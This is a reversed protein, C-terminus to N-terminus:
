AMAIISHDAGAGAIGYSIWSTRNTQTNINEIWCRKALLLARIWTIVIEM